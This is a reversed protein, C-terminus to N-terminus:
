TTAPQVNKLNLLRLVGHKLRDLPKLSNEIKAQMMVGAVHFYVEQALQNTDCNEILGDAVLDRALSEIYKIMRASVQEAKQRIKEDQTSIECGLSSFPCGLIKGFSALKKKQGEVVLECYKDIRNLPSLQASFAQDMAPQITTQWNHEFAAVALDSKSKFAYYFSGKNVGAATCIDDVSVSGYSSQWILDSATELLKTKTDSEPRM